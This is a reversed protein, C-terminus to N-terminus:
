EPDTALEIYLLRVTQDDFTFWINVAPADPADETKAVYLNLDPVKSFSEPKRSLAWIIGSLIEDLRKASKAVRHKEADFSKEEIIERANSQGAM